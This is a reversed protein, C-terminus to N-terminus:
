LSEAGSAGLSAVPLKLLPGVTNYARLGQLYLLTVSNKALLPPYSARTGVSRV